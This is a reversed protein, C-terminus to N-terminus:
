MSNTSKNILDIFNTFSYIEELNQKEQLFYANRQGRSHKM